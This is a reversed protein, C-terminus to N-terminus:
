PINISLKLIKQRDVCAGDRCFFEFRLDVNKGSWLKVGAGFRVDYRNEASPAVIYSRDLLEGVPISLYRPLYNLKGILVPRVKARWVLEDIIHRFLDPTFYEEGDPGREVFGFEDLHVKCVKTGIDCHLSPQGIERYGEGDTALAAVRYIGVKRNDWHFAPMGSFRTSKAFAVAMQFRLHDEPEFTIGESITRGVNIMKAIHRHLLIPPTFRLFRNAIERYVPDGLYDFFNISM